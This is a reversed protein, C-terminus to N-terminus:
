AYRSSSSSLWARKASEDRAQPALRVRPVHRECPQPQGVRLLQDRAVAARLEGLAQM